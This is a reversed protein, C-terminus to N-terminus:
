SLKNTNIQELIKTGLFIIVITLAAALAYLIINQYKKQNSRSNIVVPRFNQERDSSM